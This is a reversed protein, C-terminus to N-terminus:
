QSIVEMCHAGAGLTHNLPWNEAAQWHADTKVEIVIGCILSERIAYVTGTLGICCQAVRDNFKVRDGIKPTMKNNPSM